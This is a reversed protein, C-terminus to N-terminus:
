GASDVEGVEDADDVDDGTAAAAVAQRIVSTNHAADDSSLATAIRALGDNDELMAFLDFWGRNFNVGSPLDYRGQHQHLIIQGMGIPNVMPFIVFRAKLLGSQDAADLMALLHTLIMMGPQEGAHLGAQIFIKPLAPDDPGIKFRTLQYSTGPSDGSISIEIKKM